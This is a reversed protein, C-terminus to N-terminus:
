SEEAKNAVIIHFRSFTTEEAVRLGAGKCLKHLETRTNVRNGWTLEYWQALAAFRTPMSQMEGDSEPYAEDFIVFSGGTILARAVAAFVSPKSEPAIEHIVLFSTAIDYAAEEVMTDASVVRAECRDTLGRARILTQALEISHPEIDIGVCHTRPFREAIQVVAWGGGCGVDLLRAGRELRSRISPLKPLVFDLFIRPLTKLGEAIEQMFADGHAQYPVPSVDRFRQVYGRYDEGVLMHVRAARGLYFTAQPTGLIQDFHPAMGWGQGHRQLLGFSFATRCFIDTYFRDTGLREALGEATLGPVATIAEWFGVARGIELLHTGHYGAIIEYLRSVQQALTPVETVM